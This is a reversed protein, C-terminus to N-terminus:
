WEMAEDQGSPASPDPGTLHDLRPATEAATKGQANETGADQRRRDGGL